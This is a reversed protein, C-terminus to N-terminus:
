LGGKYPLKREKDFPGNPRGHKEVMSFYDQGEAWPEHRRIPRHDSKEPFAPRWAADNDDFRSPNQTM